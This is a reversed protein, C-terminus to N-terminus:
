LAQYLKIPAIIPLGDPLAFLEEESLFVQSQMQLGWSEAALKSLIPRKSGNELYYSKKDPGIGICGSPVALNEISSQNALHEQLSSVEISEGVKWHWIDLQSLSIVPDNWVGSIPRRVNDEIWYLTSGLGKVVMGRPYFAAEGLSHNNGEQFPRILFQHSEAINDMDTIRENLGNWKSTFYSSSGSIEIVAPQEEDSHVYADRAYVMSYGQLKVRLSYDEAALAADQCGEDWYGVRELLDRRMLLCSYSLHEAEHWKSSDSQNNVRAFEHMDVLDEYQLELRQSGSLHNSVPGVLGISLESNLCQLLNDLWNETPHICSNLLLITTGKAMMFGRNAAGVFGISESLIRYRVQGDLQKLYHELGDSSGNDIVIIEYPLDTHDMINEISTKVAELQNYSPIIISTGEFYGEYSEMGAQLGERYGDNLGLRYRELRKQTNNQLGVNSKLRRTPRKKRRM